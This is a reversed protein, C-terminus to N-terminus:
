GVLMPRTLVRAMVGLRLANALLCVIGVLGALAGMLRLYHASDHGALGAVAGAALLATGPEPGVGLHRSSGIAADAVLAWLAAHLGAVPPVGALEAYAMSQPVLLGGVTLGAVV